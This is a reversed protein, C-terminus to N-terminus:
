LDKKQVKSALSEEPLLIRPLFKKDRPSSLSKIPILRIHCENGLLYRFTVSKLQGEVFYVTSSIVKYDSFLNAFDEPEIAWNNVFAYAQKQNNFRYLERPFHTWIREM